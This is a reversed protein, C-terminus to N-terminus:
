LDLFEIQCDIPHARSDLVLPPSVWRAGLCQFYIAGVHCRWDHVWELCHISPELAVLLGSCQIRLHRASRPLTPTQQHASQNAAPQPAQMFGTSVHCNKLSTSNM